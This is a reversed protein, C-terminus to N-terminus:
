SMDELLRHTENKFEARENLLERRKANFSLESAKLKYLRNAVNLQTSAMDFIPNLIRITDQYGQEMRRRSGSPTFDLTGNIFGGQSDQPVIEVIQAKPYKKVDIMESQNLHIVFIFDCGHDYLPQIPINDGFYPFGGDWYPVGEIKEADFLFPIASSALLISEIKEREQYNLPFYEVKLTRANLCTSFTTIPSTSVKSLDVDGRIIKLLGARSFWGHGVIKGSFKAFIQTLPSPVYKLAQAIINKPNPTLIKEPSIQLWVKEAVELNGQLFLAANLAGVSTGAVANVNQEVGFERLAKWVGIHYAGKGGGGSLVLGIRKM